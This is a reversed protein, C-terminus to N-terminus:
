SVNDKIYAMLLGWADIEGLLVLREQYYASKGPGCLSKYEALAADLHGQAWAALEARDM